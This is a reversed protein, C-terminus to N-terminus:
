KRHQPRVQTDGQFFIVHQEPRRPCFYVLSNRLGKLGTAEMRVRVRSKVGLDFTSRPEARAWSYDRAISSSNSTASGTTIPLSISM